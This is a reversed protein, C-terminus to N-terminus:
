IVGSVTKVKVDYQWGKTPSHCAFVKVNYNLVKAKDCLTQANEQTMDEAWFTLKTGVADSVNAGLQAALIKLNGVM